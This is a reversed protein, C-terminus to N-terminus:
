FMTAAVLAKRKFHRQLVVCADGADLPLRWGQSPVSGASSARKM